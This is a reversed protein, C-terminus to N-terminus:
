SLVHWTVTMVDMRLISKALRVVKLIGIILTTIDASPNASPRRRLLFGVAARPDAGLTSVIRGVDVSCRMVAQVQCGCKYM